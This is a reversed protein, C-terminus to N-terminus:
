EAAASRRLRICAGGCRPLRNFSAITQQRNTVPAYFRRNAKERVFQGSRGDMQIGVTDMRCTFSILSHINRLEQLGYNVRRRADDARTVHDFAPGGARVIARRALKRKDHRACLRQAKTVRQREPLPTRM